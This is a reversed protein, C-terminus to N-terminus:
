DVAPIDARFVLRGDDQGIVLGVTGRRRGSGLGALRARAARGAGDDRDAPLRDFALVVLVVHDLRQGLAQHDFQGSM